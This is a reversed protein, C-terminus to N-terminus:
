RLVESVTESGFMLHGHQTDKRGRWRNLHKSVPPTRSSIFFGRLSVQAQCALMQDAYIYILGGSSPEKMSVSQQLTVELM